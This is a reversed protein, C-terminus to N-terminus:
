GLPNGPEGVSGVHLVLYVRNLEEYYICVVLANVGNDFRFVGEVFLDMAYQRTNIMGTLNSPNRIEDRMNLLDSVTQLHTM